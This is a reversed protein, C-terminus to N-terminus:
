ALRSVGMQVRVRNPMGSTVPYRWGGGARRVRPCRLADDRREVRLRHVMSSGTPGESREDSSM